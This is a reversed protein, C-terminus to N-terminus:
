AYAGRILDCIERVCGQGGKQTCIYSAVQKNEVTGNAPTASFGVLKMADIDNVDDGIYATEAPSIQATQLLQQLAYVKDKEGQLVYDIKLKAARKQLLATTESTLLATKIGLKRVLELGKGDRTNFKKLEDGTESYYMGADTLVGDVDMVLLKIKKLLSAIEGANQKKRLLLHQVMEWDSADDLELYTEQPMEYSAIKGSLRCSHELLAKKSTIYFAGNEVLFGDWDQRRPRAAPVYNQPLVFVGDNKWLFRKQRVVSVLSDANTELYRSIGDRLHMSELLPSTAQVLVIDTCDCNQAFELMASETSAADTATEPSRGIVTVKANGYKTVATAIESSDTAVYVREISDCGCIADLVWFALPRGAIERINKLPINKSGGRLPVFAVIQRSDPEM